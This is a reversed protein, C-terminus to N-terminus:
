AALKWYLSGAKARVRPPVEPNNLLSQLLELAKEKEGNLSYLKAQYYEALWKEQTDGYEQQFLDLYIQASKYKELKLFTEVAILMKMALKDRCRTIIQRVDDAFESNPYKALFEKALRLANKTDTQDRDPPLSKLYYAEIIRYVAEETHETNPYNEILFRFENIASDYDKDKLYSMAIYFQAKEVYDSRPFRYMLDRFQQIARDYHGKQYLQLAAQFQDRPNSYGYFTKKACSISLLIVSFILIFLANKRNSM